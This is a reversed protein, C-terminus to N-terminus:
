ASLAIVPKRFYAEFSSLRGSFVISVCDSNTKITSKPCTIQFKFLGNLHVLLGECSFKDGTIAFIKKLEVALKSEIIVCYDVTEDIDVNVRLKAYMTGNVDKLRVFRGCAYLCAANSSISNM